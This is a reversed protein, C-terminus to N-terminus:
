LTPRTYSFIFDAFLNDQFFKSFRHYQLSFLLLIPLPLIQSYLHNVFSLVVDILHLEFILNLTNHHYRVFFGRHLLMLCSHKKFSQKCLISGLASRVIASGYPSFTSLPSISTKTLIYFIRHDISLFARRCLIDTQSNAFPFFFIHAYKTQM